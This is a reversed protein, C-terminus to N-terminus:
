KFDPRREMERHRITVARDGSSLDAALREAMAVSRHQGGTCGIGVTFVTRGEQELQPLLFLLLKEIRDLYERSQPFSFIYDSVPADLGTLKKLEDRYFPNPLARMDFVTDCEAPIGSRYGFSIIRIEASRTRGTLYASLLSWLQGNTTSSTDIIHDSLEYLPQLMRREYAISEEISGNTVRMLPHPRRSEKYRRMLVATSADFFLLRCTLRPDKKLSLILPPLESISDASRIDLGIGVKKHPENSKLCLDIFVPVLAPPINDACYYGIDEMLNLAQSKGSGSLGTVVTLEM